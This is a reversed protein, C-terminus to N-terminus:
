KVCLMRLANNEDSKNVTSRGRAQRKSKPTKGTALHRHTASGTKVSGSKRVKIRKKAGSITKMKPM